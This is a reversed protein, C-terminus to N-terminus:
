YMVKVAESSPLKEFNSLLISVVSQAVLNKMCTDTFTFSKGNTSEESPCLPLFLARIFFCGGDQLQSDMFLPGLPHIADM